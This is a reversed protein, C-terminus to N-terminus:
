TIVDGMRFDRRGQAPRLLVMWVDTLYPGNDSPTIPSISKNRQCPALFISNSMSCEHPFVGEIGRRFDFSDGICTYSLHLMCM